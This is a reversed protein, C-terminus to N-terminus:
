YIGFKMVIWGILAMNERRVSLGVSLCVSQVHRFCVTTKRLNAFAGVFVATCPLVSAPQPQRSTCNCSTYRWKTYKRLCMIHTPSVLKMDATVNYLLLNLNKNLWIVFSALCVRSILELNALVFAANLLFAVRKVRSISM